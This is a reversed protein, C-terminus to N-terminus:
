VNDGRELQGRVEQMTATTQSKRISKALYKQATRARNAEAVQKKDLIGQLRRKKAEVAGAEDEACDADARARRADRALQKEELDLRNAEAAEDRRKGRAEVLRQQEEIKDIRSGGKTRGSNTDMGLLKGPEATTGVHSPLTPAMDAALKNRRALLRTAKKQEAVWRAEARREEALLAKEQAQNTAVLLRAAARAEAAQRKEAAQANAKAQKVAQRNAEMAAKLTALEAAMTNRVRLGEEEIFVDLAAMTRQHELYYEGKTWNSIAENLFVVQGPFCQGGIVVELLDIDDKDGLRIQDFHDTIAQAQKLGFFCSPPFEAKPGLLNLYFDEFSDVLHRTLDNALDQPHRCSGKPVQKKRKRTLTAITPDKAFSHPNSLMTDFNDVDMQQIVELLQTADNPACNSCKCIAFGKREEESKELLFNPDRDSMPIYGVKNDVTLAIRLCCPTVALADMRADDDQYTSEGFDGVDNKGNKRSREMFLLGLGVNGDRGCRGVMQVIAAPDGRGMHVVCRVRKLNQGLGLAMTASIVPVKSNGFDQIARQKEKDGTVSHYRRIFPDQPDYEHRPTHRGENVVQMVRFTRNRTGSYIIMPVARDAPTRTHPAFIRLLDDCSSLTSDMYVRIFRIEPRTLEGDIMNLESPNLMLSATIAAVAEPRCTASLLLIPVNNTAMLRTGIHGYAPRFVAQDELRAFIILNKSHKSSVLGWLYIMHGEDVVILALVDQFEDSFFM